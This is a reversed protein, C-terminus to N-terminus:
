AEPEIALAFAATESMRPYIWPHTGDTTKAYTTLTVAFACRPLVSAPDPPADRTLMLGFTNTGSAGPPALPVGVNAPSPTPLNGVGGNAVSGNLGRLWSIDHSQQFRSDAVFARYELGFTSGLDGALFQCEEDSSTGNMVLREIDAIPPRNDWCFLHTLAAYPVDMTDDGISGGPQFRRRFRFARETEAGSLGSPPAGLPRLRQGVADFVEITVLHDIAPTTPYAITDDYIPTGPVNFQPVLTDLQAHHRISGVWPEDSWPIRYLNSQGGIPAPQPGLTEPVIDLGVVKEWALPDHYLYRTGVPNGSADAQSVSIRYYHAGLARMGLSFAYRLEIRGGLNRLHGRLDADPFLLGSTSTPAAVRDWGTSPPTTLDHSETDGILDLFVFANGDGTGTQECSYARPHYTTLVPQDSAAFWSAAALGDYVTTTSGGVTQKVIFAYQDCCNPRSLRIAELWCVDFTGDNQLPGAGV